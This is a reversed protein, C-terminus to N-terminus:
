KGFSDEEDAEEDTPPLFMVDEATWITDLGDTFVVVNDYEDEMLDDGSLIEWGPNRIFGGAGMMGGGITAVGGQREKEPPTRLDEQRRGASKQTGERGGQRRGRRHVLTSIEACVSIRCWGSLVVVRVQRPLTVSSIGPHLDRVQQEDVIRVPLRLYLKV